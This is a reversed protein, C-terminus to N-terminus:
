RSFPFLLPLRTPFILTTKETFTRIGPWQRSTPTTFPPTLSSACVAFSYRESLSILHLLIGYGDPAPFRLQTVREDPYRRRRRRKVYVARYPVNSM